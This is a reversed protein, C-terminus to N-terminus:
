GRKKLLMIGFIGGAAPIECTYTIIGIEVRKPFLIGSAIQM